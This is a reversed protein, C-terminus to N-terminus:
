KVEDMDGGKTSLNVTNEVPCLVDSTCKLCRICQHDKISDKDSVVINMPCGKDCVKCSICINKNRRIKFISIFNFLGLFGGLPCLYKCWPREIFLSSVLVVILLVIAQIKVEGTWFNFLAYYPDIDNFLLKGTKGIVYVIWIFTFYRLYRLKKDLKNPIFINYRRGFIKKGIKGIWEQVSGLPCVWGCFVSGFLISLFIVIGLMVFSSEHIKQVFSGDTAFKYISVVGGFPCLGHLSAKSIFPITINKRSLYENLATLLITAFFFIQVFLRIKINRSKEMSKIKTM